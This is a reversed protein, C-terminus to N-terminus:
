RAVRGAGDQLARGRHEVQTGLPLGGLDLSGALKELPEKPPTWTRGLGITFEFTRDSRAQKHVATCWQRIIFDFNSIRRTTCQGLPVDPGNM